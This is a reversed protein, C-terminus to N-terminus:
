PTIGLITAFLEFQGNESGGFATREWMQVNEKNGSLVKMFDLYAQIDEASHKEYYDAADNLEKILFEYDAYKISSKTEIKGDLLVDVLPLLTKELGFSVTDSDTAFVRGVTARSVKYNKEEM